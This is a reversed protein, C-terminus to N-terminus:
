KGGELKLLLQAATDAEAETCGNEVTMRRLKVALRSRETLNLKDVGAASPMAAFAMDRYIAALKLAKLRKQGGYGYVNNELNRALGILHDFRVGDTALTNM